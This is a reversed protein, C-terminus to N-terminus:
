QPGAQVAGPAHDRSAGAASGGEGRAATASTSSIIGSGDDDSDATLDIPKVGAEALEVKASDFPFM